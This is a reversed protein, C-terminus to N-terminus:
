SYVAPNVVNEPRRGQIAEAVQQMARTRLERLSEESLFAAHPTVIVRRDRYLPLSLDPPEPDFVDLAAGAIQGSQVAQWLAAHDILGGRSTNVLYASRQMREFQPLGFMGSSEASLPAHLSIFDSRVLLEDFPVMPCGTDYANGSPTHAIVEFGLARAKAFLAQAIRGFGVLGLVQGDVRKLAPGAQLEYNGAKAQQNYFAVKRACSLILALAHNSVESVCYDPVNTVPIGLSSATQISINDLGIGLRAIIRCEAAARIVAETVPAWCTAIACCDVVHECLTSEDSAPAEMLEAGIGALIERELETDPWARDTLLVRTAASM